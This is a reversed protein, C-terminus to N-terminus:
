KTAREVHQAYPKDVPTRLEARLNYEELEIEPRNFNVPPQVQSKGKEQQWSGIGQEWRGGPTASNNGIRV